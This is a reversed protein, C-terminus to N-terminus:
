HDNNLKSQLYYKLVFVNVEAIYFMQRLNKTFWSNKGKVTWKSFHNWIIKGNNNFNLYILRTHSLSNENKLKKLESEIKLSIRLPLCDVEKPICM